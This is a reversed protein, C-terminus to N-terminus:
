QMTQQFMLQAIHMEALAIYWGDATDYTTGEPPLVARPVNALRIMDTMNHTIPRGKVEYNGPSIEVLSGIRPFTLQHLQLYCHAIQGWITELTSDAIDPDLVHPESSDKSPQTLRASVSGQLEVRDMM